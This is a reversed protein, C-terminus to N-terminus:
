LGHYHIDARGGLPSNLAQRVIRDIHICATYHCILGAGTTLDLM